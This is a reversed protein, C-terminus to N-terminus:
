CCSKWIRNLGTFWIMADLAVAEFARDEITAVLTLAKAVMIPVDIQLEVTEPDGDAPLIKQWILERVFEDTHVATDDGISNTM